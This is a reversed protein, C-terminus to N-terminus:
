RPFSTAHRRQWPGSLQRSEERGTIPWAPQATAVRTRAPETHAGADEANWPAVGGQLVVLWQLQENKQSKFIHRATGFDIQCCRHALAPYEGHPWFMEVALFMASGSWLLRSFWSLVMETQCFRFHSKYRLASPIDPKRVLTRQPTPSRETDSGSFRRVLTSVGNERERGSAPSDDVNDYPSAAQSSTVAAREPSPLKQAHAPDAQQSYLAETLNECFGRKKRKQDNLVLQVIGSITLSISGNRKNRCLFVISSAWTMWFNTLIPFQLQGSLSKVGHGNKVCCVAFMVQSETSSSRSKGFSFKGSCAFSERQWEVCMHTHISMCGQCKDSVLDLPVKKTLTTMGFLTKHRTDWVFHVDCVCM